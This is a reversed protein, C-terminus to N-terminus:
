TLVVTTCSGVTCVMGLWVLIAEDAPHAVLSKVEAVLGLGTNDVSVGSTESVTTDHAAFTFIHSVVRQSVLKIYQGTHSKM